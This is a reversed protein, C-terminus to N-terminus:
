SMLPIFIKKRVTVNIQVRVSMPSLQTTPSKMLIVPPFKPSEEGSYYLENFALIKNLIM